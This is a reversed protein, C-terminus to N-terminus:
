ERKQVRTGAIIDGLRQNEETLLITMIPIIIFMPQIEFIKIINRLVIERLSCKMGIKNKLYLGVILKGVTAGILFEATFSYLFLSILYGMNLMIIYDYLRMDQFRLMGVFLISIAFAIMIDILFGCIRSFLSGIRIDHVNRYLLVPFWKKLIFFFLLAFATILVVMMVIFPILAEGSYESTWEGKNNKFVQIGAVGFPIYNSRVLMENGDEFTTLSIGQYKEAYRMRTVPIITSGGWQSDKYSCYAVTSDKNKEQKEIFYIKKEPSIDYCNIAVRDFDHRVWTGEEWFIFCVGQCDKERWSIVPAGRSFLFRTDYIEGHITYSSFATDDIIEDGKVTGIKLVTNEGEPKNLLAFVEENYAAGNVCYENTKAPIFGTYEIDKGRVRYRSLGKSGEVVYLEERTSFASSLSGNFVKLRYFTKDYQYIGVFSNYKNLGKLDEFFIEKSVLYIKGDIEFAKTSLCFAAREMNQPFVFASLILLPVLIFAKRPIKLM